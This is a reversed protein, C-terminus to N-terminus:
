SLKMYVLVSEQSLIQHNKNRKWVLISMQQEVAQQGFVDFVNEEKWSVFSRPCSGVNKINDFWSVFGPCAWTSLVLVMKRRVEMQRKKPGCIQIQRFYWTKWTGSTDHHSFSYNMRSLNDLYFVSKELSANEHGGSPRPLGNRNKLVGISLFWRQPLFGADWFINARCSISVM